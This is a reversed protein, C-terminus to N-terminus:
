PHIGIVAEVADVPSVLTFRLMAGDARAGEPLGDLVFAFPHVTPASGPEPTIPQPLPLAWDLTPGEVLLDIPVGQPAAVEVIVQPRAHDGDLRM